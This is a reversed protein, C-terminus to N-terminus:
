NHIKFWQQVIMNWQTCWVSQLGVSDIWRFWLMIIPKEVLQDTQLRDIINQNIDIAYM